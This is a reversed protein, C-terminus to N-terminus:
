NGFGGFGGFGSSGGGGSTPCGGGQTAAVLASFGDGGTCTMGCMPYYSAFNFCMEDDSGTGFGVTTATDNEYVCTTRVRDGNRLEIEPTLPVTVQDEFSFPMDHVVEVSGDARLVELKAAVGLQHMHPSSAMLYVPGDTTNVTCINENVTRQGAAATAPAAFPFTASTYQRPTRTICIEVGSQDPEDQNNGLNYYHVDLKLTGSSPMYIGVNAPPAHGEKGPSWGTLFNEGQYLIWHHLVRKNETIPRIAVAQVDGSWPINFDFAPHTETNARVVHPGGNGDSARFEYREECDAPWEFATPTMEEPPPEIDAGLCQPDDGAPAGEAIWADLLATQEATLPPQNVPPMPSTADHIRAGVRQYIPTTGDFVSLAATDAHTVLSMPAGYALEAGHCGQCSTRLVGLAKCWSSDGAVPTNNGTAIMAGGTGINAGGAGGLAAGGTGAGFVPLTAGDGSVADPNGDCGGGLCTLLAVAICGCSSIGQTLRRM